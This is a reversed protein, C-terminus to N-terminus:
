LFSDPLSEKKRDPLSAKTRNSKDSLKSQVSGRKLPLCLFFSGTWILYQHVAGGFFKTPLLFPTQLQALDEESLGIIQRLYSQVSGYHRELSAKLAALNTEDVTNIWYISELLVPDDIGAEKAEKAM